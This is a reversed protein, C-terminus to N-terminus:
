APFIQLTDGAAIALYDTDAQQYSWAVQAVERKADFSAMPGTIPDPLPGLDWLLLLGDDSVSAIHKSSRPAWAVANVAREHAKLEAAVISSVRIDIIYVVPNQNALVAVLNENHNNWALRFLPRGRPTEYLVTAKSMGNRRDFLRLSGDEGVTALLQGDRRSFAVDYVKSDHAEVQDLLKNEEIDWLDVKKNVSSTAILNPEQFSWDFSTLPACYGTGVEETTSRHTSALKVSRGNPAVQWIRLCDASTALLDPTKAGEAPNFEPLWSIRTPPFVHEFEARKVFLQQKRDLEVIEVKNTRQRDLFSGLALRFCGDSIELPRFSWGLAYIPWPAHYSYLEETAAEDLTVNENELESSVEEEDAEEEEEENHNNTENSSRLPEENTAVPGDDDQTRNRKPPHVKRTGESERKRSIPRRRLILSEEEDGEDEGRNPTTTPIKERPIHISSQRRQAQAQQYAQTNDEQEEEEEEEEYYYSEAEGWHHDEGNARVSRNPQKDAYENTEDEFRSTSVM